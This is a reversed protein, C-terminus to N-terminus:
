PTSEIWVTYVSFRCDAGPWRRWTRSDAACSTRKALCDPMARNQRVHSWLPCARRGVHAQAYPPCPKQIEFAFRWDTGSTRAMLFREARHIFDATNAMVSVSRRSCVLDRGLPPQAPQLRCRESRGLRRGAGACAGRRGRECVCGSRVHCHRFATCCRWCCPWATATWASVCARPNPAHSEDVLAQVEVLLPRTGEQTALVVSGPVADGQRSVFM